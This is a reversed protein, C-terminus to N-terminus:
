IVELPMSIQSCIDASVCPDDGLSMCHLYKNSHGFAYTDPHAPPQSLLPLPPNLAVAWSLLAMDYFSNVIPGEFQVMMEINPRDQINNSNICAVRRDVVLYKAHFTGLIPRHYNIVELSVGPLEDETPLGVRAWDAPKVLVRNKAVQQVTGRDYMFKVVAKKGSGRAVMRRSLERLSDSILTASRSPQWYNTALFVEHEASIILEAYHRMIDPIVSVISLPIVGSSGLLPPSVLGALPREELTTLVENYVQFEHSSRQGAFFVVYPSTYTARSVALLGMLSTWAQSFSRAGSGGM